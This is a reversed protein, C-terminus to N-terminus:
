WKESPKTSLEAQKDLALEIVENLEDRAKVAELLVEDIDKLKTVKPISMKIKEYSNM